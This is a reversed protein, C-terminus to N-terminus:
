VITGRIHSLLNDNVLFKLRSFRVSILRSRAGEKGARYFLQKQFFLNVTKVKKSIKVKLHRSAIARASNWAHNTPKPESTSLCRSQRVALNASTAELTRPREPNKEADLVRFTGFGTL